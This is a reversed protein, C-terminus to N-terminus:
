KNSEKHEATFARDTAEILAYHASEARERDGTWGLCLSTRTAEFFSKALEYVPRMREVEARIIKGAPEDGWLGGEIQKGMDALLSGAWKQWTNAHTRWFEADALHQDRDARLQDREICVRSLADEAHAADCNCVCDEGCRTHLCDPCERAMVFGNGPLLRRSVSM